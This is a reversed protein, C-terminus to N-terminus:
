ISSIFMSLAMRRRWSKARDKVAGEMALLAIMDEVSLWFGITRNVAGVGFPNLALM